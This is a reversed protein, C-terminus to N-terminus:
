STTPREPVIALVKPIGVEELFARFVALQSETLDGDDLLVSIGLLAGDYFVTM